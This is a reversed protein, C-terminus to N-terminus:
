EKVVTFKLERVAEAGSTLPKGTVKVTFDGLAADAAATLKVQAAKDGHKIVPDATEITVGTPMEGFTLTVDQAFTKDRSIGIDVTKSEGQKISTSLLPVGLTFTDKAAVTLKFEVKADGGKTPHGTVKITYDGVPADEGADVHIKTDTDGHKIAANEPKITVGLPVDDFSLAVDEDFNKGRKIGITAEMQNGQQLSSSLVPVSLNFTDAAQGLVPPKEGTTGTVGPGGPTGQTCGALATLTFMTLGAILNKM